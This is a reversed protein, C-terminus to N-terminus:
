DATPDAFQNESVAVVTSRLPSFGLFFILLLVVAGILFPSGPSIQDYLIGGYLPGIVRGLSGISSNIGLGGGQQEQPIRNSIASNIAPNLLATGLGLPIIVIILLILSNALALLAFGIVQLVISILITQDDGFRDVVPGVLTSQAIAVLLGIGAFFYGINDQNIRGDVFNAYLPLVTEFGSFILTTVLFMVLLLPIQAFKLFNRLEELQNQEPQMAIRELVEPTLSEPLNRFALFLNILTLGAAFLAAPAQEPLGSIAFFDLSLISGIAPGFTFGIGFAAGLLGYRKARDKPPTIDAIYARATPLTAGTFLGAIIRSALYLNYTNVLGFMTFGITSGFLGVLIVPRRGIRDSLRGWLPASVFQALSYVSLLVALLFGAQAKDVEEVLFPLIPIIIGFGLLDILVALFLLGFSGRSEQQPSELFESNDETM